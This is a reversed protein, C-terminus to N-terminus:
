PRDGMGRLAADFRHVTKRLNREGQDKKIIVDLSILPAQATTFTISAFPQRFTTFRTCELNGNRRVLDMRSVHEKDRMAGFVVYHPCGEEPEAQLVVTQENGRYEGAEPVVTSAERVARDFEKEVESVALMRDLAQTNLASLRSGSLFLKGCLNIAIALVAVYVLMEIITYGATRRPRSTRKDPKALHINIGLM